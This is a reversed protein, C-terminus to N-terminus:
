QCDPNGKKMSRIKINLTYLKRHPNLKREKGRLVLINLSNKVHNNTMQNERKKFVCEVLKGKTLM